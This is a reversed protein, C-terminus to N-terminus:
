IEMRRPEFFLFVKICKDYTFQKNCHKKKPFASQSKLIRREVAIGQRYAYFAPHTSQSWSDPWQISSFVLLSRAILDIQVTATYPSVAPRLLAPKYYELYTYVVNLFVVVLDNTLYM